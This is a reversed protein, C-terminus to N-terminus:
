RGSPHNMSIALVCRSLTVQQVRSCTIWRSLLSLFHCVHLWGHGRRACLGLSAQVRLTAKDLSGSGDPDPLNDQIFFVLFTTMLSGVNWSVSHEVPIFIRSFMSIWGWAFMAVSNHFVMGGYLVWGLLAGGHGLQFPCELGSSRSSHTNRLVFNEPWSGVLTSYKSAHVSPERWFQPAGLIVIPQPM